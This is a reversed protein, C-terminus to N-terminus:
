NNSDELLRKMRHAYSEINHFEKYYNQIEAIKAKVALNQSVELLKKVLSEIEQVTIVLEELGYKSLEKAMWTNQSVVPIKGAIICEAFIGSTRESYANSNYPLLVVDCTSLWRSYEVRTLNDKVLQVRVGGPVSVLRSSKAAVLCFKYTEEDVFGVLKKMIEWGKEARPPGPWWCLIEDARRPFKEKCIIETHPIPMVIVPENFYSSLDESLLESDTLLQLRNPYLIQKIVKNFLKYIFRTRAKHTDRRYLLWVYLNSKPLLLLAIIFAFLHLHIFRELFIISFESKSIVDQGLYRAASVGLSFANRIRLIKQILNGEAEMHESSLCPSWNSPLDIIGPSISVAAVHKWGLLTAAKGVSQHYPYVHGEGGVINPILSVLIPEM